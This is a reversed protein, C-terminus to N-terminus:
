ETLDLVLEKNGGSEISIVLDTTGPDTYKQSYKSKRASKMENGDMPPPEGGAADDSMVTVRHSGIVAGLQGNTKIQFVGQSDTKGIGVPGKEPYFTITADAIPTENFRAVGAAPALSLKSGSGGGCGALLALCISLKWTNHM